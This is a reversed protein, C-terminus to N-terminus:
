EKGKGQGGKRGAKKVQSPKRRVRRPNGNQQAANRNDLFRRHTQDRLKVDLGINQNGKSQRGRHQNALNKGGTLHRKNHAQSGIQLPPRHRLGPRADFLQHAQGRGRGPQHPAPLLKHNRGLLYLLPIHQPHQGPLRHRHVPHDEPAAGGDVLRHHRPLGQRHVLLRPVLYEAARDILEAGKLHLRAPHPLVARELPHDAQHLRGVRAFRVDDSGGVAPGGPDHHRRQRGGGDGPKCGM